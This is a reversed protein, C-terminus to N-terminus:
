FSSSSPWRAGSRGLARRIGIEAPGRRSRRWRMINMIGIGGALVAISTISGLVVDYNREISQAQRLLHRPVTISYDHRSHFNALIRDLSQDRQM